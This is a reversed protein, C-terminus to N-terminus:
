GSPMALITKIDLKDTYREFSVTKNNRALVAMRDALENGEIDAHGRVHTIILQSKLKEYLEYCTQILALNKIEEKNGRTWGKNKWGKAWKTICDISYRSDSLIQVNKQQKIYHEAIHFAKLMGNLEASNNTGNAEYLGFWLSSLREKEYIAVGTGAKGPNPSCAGDCYINIDAVPRASKTGSATKTKTKSPSAGTPSGKKGKALSRKMLAKTYTAQFAQEAEQLSPFGMYQADSRGDIQAKAEPWSDFIGTKAGKWIVYYKKSM